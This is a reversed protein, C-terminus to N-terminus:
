YILEVAASQLAQKWSEDPESDTVIMDVDSLECIKTFSTKDFKSSDCLIYGQKCQELATQKILAEGADNDGKILDGFGKVFGAGIFGALFMDRLYLLAKGGDGAQPSGAADMEDDAYLTGIDVGDRRLDLGVKGIAAAGPRIMHEAHDSQIVGGGGILDGLIGAPAKDIALSLDEL